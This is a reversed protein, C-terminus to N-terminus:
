TKLERHKSILLRLNMIAAVSASVRDIDQINKNINFNGGTVTIMMDVFSSIIESNDPFNHQLFQRLIVIYASMKISLVGTKTAPLDENSWYAISLEMFEDCFREATIIIHKKEEWKRAVKALRENIFLTCFSAFLAVMCLKFLESILLM